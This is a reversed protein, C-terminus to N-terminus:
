SARMENFVPVEGTPDEITMMVTFEGAAEPRQEGARRLYDVELTWDTSSGAGRPMATDYSEILYSGGPKM